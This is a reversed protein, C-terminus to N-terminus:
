QEIVPQGDMLRASGAAVVVEGSELGALIEVTDGFHKGIKVLRLSATRNTVVFVVDMQGREVVAAAPIRLSSSEAVPFELKGFLGSRLNPVGPLDIKILFTRSDPDAVPAIEAITGELTKALAPIHVALKRGMEVRGILSEAVSAEFRMSAPDEIEVLPKGPAALDGVEATKRSVLGAFPATITAHALMAEAEAVGAQATQHRSQVNDFESRTASKQEFLTQARKLDREAQERVALASDLRARFERADLEALLDGQKVRQGQVVPLKEIRGSIKAALTARLKAQVTGPVSETVPYSAAEILRTPVTAAPLTKPQSPAEPSCAALLGAVVASLAHKLFGVRTPASTLLSVNTEIVPNKKFILAEKRRSRRNNFCARVLLNLFSKM